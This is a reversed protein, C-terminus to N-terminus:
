SSWAVHKTIQVKSLDFIWWILRNSSWTETAVAAFNWELVSLGARNTELGQLLKHSLNLKEFYSQKNKTNTAFHVTKNRFKNIFAVATFYHM